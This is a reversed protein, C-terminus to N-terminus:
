PKADGAIDRFDLAARQRLAIKRRAAVASKTTWCADPSAGGIAWNRQIFLKVDELTVNPQCM